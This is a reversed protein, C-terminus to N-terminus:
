VSIEAATNSNDARFHYSSMLRLGPYRLLSHYHYIVIHSDTLTLLLTYVPPLPDHAARQQATTEAAVARCATLSAVAGGAVRDTQIVVRCLRQSVWSPMVWFEQIQFVLILTFLLQDIGAFYWTKYKKITVKLLCAGFLCYYWDTLNRQYLRKKGASAVRSSRSLKRNWGM